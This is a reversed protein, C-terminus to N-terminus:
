SKKKGFGILKGLRETLNMPKEDPKEFVDWEGKIRQGLTQLYNHVAQEKWSKLQVSDDSALMLDLEELSNGVQQIWYRINEKNAIWSEVSEEPNDITGVSHYFPTGTLKRAERWGPQSGITHMIVSGLLSPLQTASAILGDLEAVDGFIIKTKLMASLTTALDVAEESAHNGAAVYVIGNEFYDSQPQSPLSLDTWLYKPNVTVSLNLHHIYDPALQSLKQNIAQKGPCFDFLYRHNNLDPAIIEITKLTESIPECLVILDAEAIASPLNAEIKDVAKADKAAKMLKPDHDNGVTIIKEPFGSLAMGLNLGTRNLGIITIQFTM